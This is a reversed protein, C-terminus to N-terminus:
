GELPMAIEVYHEDLAHNIQEYRVIAGPNGDITSQKLAAVESLPGRLVRLDRMKGDISIRAPYTTVRPMRQTM